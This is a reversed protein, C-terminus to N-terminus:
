KYTNYILELDEKNSVWREEIYGCDCCVRRCTAIVKFKSIPIHYIGAGDKIEVVKTSSCKSCIINEKM